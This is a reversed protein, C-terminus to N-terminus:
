DKDPSLAKCCGALWSNWLLSHTLLFLVVTRSPVQRDNESMETASTIRLLSATCHHPVSSGTLPKGGCM